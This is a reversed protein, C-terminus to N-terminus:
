FSPKATNVEGDPLTETQSKATFVESETLLYDTVQGYHTTHSKQCNAIISNLKMSFRSDTDFRLEKKICTSSLRLGSAKFSIALFAKSFFVPARPNLAMNTHVCHLRNCVLDRIEVSRIGSSLHSNKFCHKHTTAMAATIQPIVHHLQTAQRDSYDTCSQVSDNKM